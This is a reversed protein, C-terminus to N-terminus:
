QRTDNDGQYVAFVDLTATTGGIYMAADDLTM